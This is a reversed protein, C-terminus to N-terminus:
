PATGKAPTVRWIRNGSDDAVLLGGSKDFALGAPRGRADGDKNLFGTLVDVPKAEDRPFGRENYPIYVVKYGSVPVRNWSGHMAVFAGNEFSDGWAKGPSFAM